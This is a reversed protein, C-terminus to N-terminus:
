AQVPNSMEARIVRLYSEASEINEYEKKAATIKKAQKYWYVSMDLAEQRLNTIKDRLSGEKMDAAMDEYKSACRVSHEAFYMCSSWLLVGSVTNGLQHASVTINRRLEPELRMNICVTKTM